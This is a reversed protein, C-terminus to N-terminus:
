KAAVPNSEPSDKSVSSIINWATIRISVKKGVHETKPTFWNSTEGDIPEGDLLWQYAVRPAPLAGPQGADFTMRKGVVPSTDYLKPTGHFSPAVWRISEVVGAEILASVLASSQMSLEDEIYIMQRMAPIVIHKDDTTWVGIPTM